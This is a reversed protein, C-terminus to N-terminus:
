FTRMMFNMGSKYGNFFQFNEQCHPRLVLVDVELFRLVIKVKLLKYIRFHPRTDCKLM